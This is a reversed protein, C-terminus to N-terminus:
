AQKLHDLPLSRLYQAATDNEKRMADRLKSPSFHATESGYRSSTGLVPSKELPTRIPDISFGVRMGLKVQGSNSTQKTPSLM